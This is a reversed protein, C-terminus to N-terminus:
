EIVVIGKTLATVGAGEGLRYYVEYVGPTQFDVKSDIAVYERLKEAEKEGQLVEKVNQQFDFVQGVPLYLLYNQLRIKAPYTIKDYDLAVSLNCETGTSDHAHIKLVVQKDELTGVKVDVSNSIDGDVCSTAGIMKHIKSVSIVDQVLSNDMYFKPAIYDTYSITRTAETAKNKKDFVVYRVTRKKQGDFASVSDVIIDKTLDGDEHDTAKVGELLRSKDDTVSLVLHSDEFIIEPAQNRDEKELTHLFIGYAVVLLVTAIVSFVRRKM